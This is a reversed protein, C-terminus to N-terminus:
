NLTTVALNLYFSGCLAFLKSHFLDLLIM